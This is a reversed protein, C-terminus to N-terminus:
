GFGTLAVYVLDDNRGRVTEADLGLSRAREPELDTVMVDAGDILARLEDVHAVPDFSAHRRGRAWPRLDAVSQPPGAAPLEVRIVDAGYDGLLMTAVAGPMARTLDLVRVGALVGDGTGAVAM